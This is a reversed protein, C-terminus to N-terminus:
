VQFIIIEFYGLFDEYMQTVKASFKDGFVKSFVGLRTVSFVLRWWRGSFLEVNLTEVYM